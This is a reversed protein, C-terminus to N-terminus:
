WYQQVLLTGEADVCPADRGQAALAVEAELYARHLREHESGPAFFSFAELGELWAGVQDRVLAEDGRALLRRVVGTDNYVEPYSAITRACAFLAGPQPLADRGPTFGTDALYATHRAAVENLFTARVWGVEVPDIGEAMAEDVLVVASYAARWVRLRNRFHAIEHTLVLTGGAYDDALVIWGPLDGDDRPPTRRAACQFLAGVQAQAVDVGRPLGGLRSRDRSCLIGLLTGDDFAASAAEAAAIYAPSSARAMDALLARALPDVVSRRRFM